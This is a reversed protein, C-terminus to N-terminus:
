DQFAYEEFDPLEDLTLCLTGNYSDHLSQWSNYKESLDGHNDIIASGSAISFWLWLANDRNMLDPSPMRDCATVALIKPTAGTMEALVSFRGAFSSSSNEYFSQGIIDCYDDGPYYDESSGNWVWILNNLSHYKDLRDFVLKWLKKYDEASGGWWYMSSDGDPLPQFVVPIGESRFQTLVAAVADIDHVLAAAEQTIIESDILAQLEDDAAMSIDREPLIDTLRFSTSDAYYSPRESPAYWHWGFSVIGGNRGWELALETEKDAIESSSEYVASTCYMLDGTRMAPSRGTETKVADIEANSGPTVCQGAIVSKGYSDAFFKMLGLTRVATDSGACSSSVYYSSKDVQSSNEVIVYDLAATGDIVEFSLIDPGASLYVNDIAYMTFETSDSSPIYYAGVTENVTKLRVVAGTYSHAAISICYHQSTDASVIHQLKMGEDLVIYGKGDFEGDTRVNGEFTGGEANLKVYFGTNELEYRKAPIENYEATPEDTAPNEAEATEAPSLRRDPVATCGCLLAAATLLATFKLKKM